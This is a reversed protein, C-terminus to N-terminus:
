VAPTVPEIGTAGVMGELSKRQVIRHGARTAQDDPLRPALGDSFPEEGKRLSQAAMGPQHDACSKWNGASALRHRLAQLGSGRHAAAGRLIRCRQPM